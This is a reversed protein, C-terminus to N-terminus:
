FIFALGGRVARPANTLLAKRGSADVLPLYGSALMNRLEATAELRGAWGPFFPLPQRVRVNWGTVQSVDGTMFYHDPILTNPDTFGYSSSVQTGTVPVTAAVTITAWPREEEHITSRLGAASDSLAAGDTTLGGTAGGAVSASVHDSLQQKVAATYGIRNFSGVNFIASNTGIDPIADTVPLFGQPGSMTFAANSVSESYVATTYTRTGSVRQYGMEFNQTRAVRVHDDTLSIRPLTALAALDQNLSEGSAATAEEPAAAGTQALDVPQAGESYGFRVVGNSGLDYSLRAYPSMYNLHDIFSVSEMSFGYDLRLHEDLDVHDRMSLGMTRLAPGSEMGGMAAGMPRPALYLQRVTLTVQPGQEGDRNRSYTTRIGATPLGASGSYGVNGSVLLRSAGFLSTALAFATGMAQQGGTTYSDGDGASLTLMGTTNSFASSATQTGSTSLDPMFRLIPRTSQSSRLVWKWDDTMLAGGSPGSSILDVTSFLGTLNIQLVNETGAAVAINRRIAPVFSALTVRISYLDPSLLDFAFKGDANTLTRRVIQDYRDYLLVTAGMQAVGSSGKVQGLIDGSLAPLPGAGATPLLLMTGALAGVAILFSRM